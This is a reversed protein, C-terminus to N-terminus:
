EEVEPRGPYRVDENRTIVFEIRRIEQKRDPADLGAAKMAGAVVAWAKDAPLDALGRFTQTLGKDVLGALRNRVDKNWRDEVLPDAERFEALWRTITQITVGGVAAFEKRPTDPDVLWLTKVAARAETMPPRGRPRKPAELKM